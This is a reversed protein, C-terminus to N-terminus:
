RGEHDARVDDLTYEPEDDWYARAASELSLRQWDERESDDPLVTVLLRSQPKLDFPHDLRIMSGDFYAPLSVLEM